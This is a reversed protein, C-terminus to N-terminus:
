KKRPPDDIILMEITNGDEGISGHITCPREVGCARMDAEHNCGYCEGDDLPTSWKHGDPEVIIREDKCECEVRYMPDLPMWFHRARGPEHNDEEAGTLHFSALARACEADSVRGGGVRLAFSVHYQLVMEPGNPAKAFVITSIARVDGRDYIKLDLSQEHLEAPVRREIAKKRIWGSKPGPEATKHTPKGLTERKFTVSERTPENPIRSLTHEHDRNM